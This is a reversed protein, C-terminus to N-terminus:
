KTRKMLHDAVDRLWSIENNMHDTNQPEIIRKSPRIGAIWMNDMLAHVDEENLSFTPEIIDGAPVEKITLPEAVVRKRISQDIYTYAFEYSRNWDRVEMILKPRYQHEKM